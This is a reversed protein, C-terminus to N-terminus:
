PMLVLDRKAKCVYGHGPAECNVDNWGLATPFSSMKIEGCNELNDPVQCFESNPEGPIWGLYDVSSGDQWVWDADPNPPDCTQDPGSRKRLGIWVHKENKIADFKGLRDLLFDQEEQSHISALRVPNKFSRANCRAAAEAWTIPQKEPCIWYTFSDTVEVTCAGCEASSEDVFQNCNDDFGNCREILMPRVEPSKDNCDGNNDVMGEPPECALTPALKGENDFGYSDADADPWYETFPLEGPCPMAPEGTSPDDTSTSTTAIPEGSGTFAPNDACSALSCVLAALQTVVCALRHTPATRTM